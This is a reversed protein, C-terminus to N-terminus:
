VAHKMQSHRHTWENLWKPKMIKEPHSLLGQIEAPTLARQKRYPEVLTERSRAEIMAAIAEGDKQQKPPSIELTFPATQQGDASLTTVAQFADQRALYTRMNENDFRISALAADKPSLRFASFNASNAELADRIEDSLQGTHQHCLVM